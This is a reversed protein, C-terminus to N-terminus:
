LIREYFDYATHIAPVVVGVSIIAALARPVFLPSLLSNDVPDVAAHQVNWV